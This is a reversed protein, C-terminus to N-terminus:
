LSCLLRPMEPLMLRQVRSSRQLTVSHSPNSLVGLIMLSWIGQQMCPGWGGYRISSKRGKGELQEILENLSFVNFLIASQSPQFTAKFIVKDVAQFFINSHRSVSPM